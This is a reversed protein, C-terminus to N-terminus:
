ILILMYTAPSDDSFPLLIFSLTIYYRPTKAALKQNDALNM